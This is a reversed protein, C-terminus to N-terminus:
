NPKTQTVHSIDAQKNANSYVFILNISLHSGCLHNFLHPPFSILHLHVRFM